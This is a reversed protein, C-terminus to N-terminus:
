QFLEHAKQLHKSHVLLCGDLYALSRAVLKMKNRERQNRFAITMDAVESCRRTMKVDGSNQLSWKNLTQIDFMTKYIKMADDSLDKLTCAKTEQGKDDDEEYVLDFLDEFQAYMLFKNEISEDDFEARSMQFLYQTKVMFDQMFDMLVPLQHKSIRELHSGIINHCDLFGCTQRLNENAELINIFNHHGWLANCVIDNVEGALLPLFGGDGREQIFLVSHCGGGALVVLLRQRETLQFAADKPIFMRKEIM